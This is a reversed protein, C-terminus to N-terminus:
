ASQKRAVDTGLCVRNRGSGKARYVAADAMAILQTLTRHNQASRHAVGISVTVARRLSRDGSSFIDEVDARMTEAIALTDQLSLRNLVLAFEEGGLRAVIDLEPRLSEQLVAAIAILCADGDVHGFNDNYSKFHDVDVVLVACEDSATRAFDMLRRRNAVGTLPDTHSLVELERNAVELATGREELRAALRANEASLVMALVLQESMGKSIVLGFGGLMLSGFALLTGFELDSLVLGVALFFFIPTQFLNYTWPYVVAPFTVTVAAMCICCIVLAQHDDGQSVMWGSGIGWALGSCLYITRLVKSWALPSWHKLGNKRAIASALHSVAILSVCFLWVLLGTAMEPSWYAYLAMLAGVISLVSAPAAKFLADMQAGLISREHQLTQPQAAM